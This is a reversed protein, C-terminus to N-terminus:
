DHSLEPMVALRDLIPELTSVAHEEELLHTRKWYTNTFQLLSRIAACYTNTSM